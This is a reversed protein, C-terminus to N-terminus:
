CIAKAIVQQGGFNDFVINGTLHVPYNKAIAIFTAIEFIIGAKRSFCRNKCLQVKNRISWNNRIFTRLRRRM